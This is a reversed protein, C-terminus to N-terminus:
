KIHQGTWEGDNSFLNYGENSDPCLYKGTWAGDITFENFTGYSSRVFYGTWEGGANFSLLLQQCAVSIFGIMKDDKDFLFNGAWTSNKPHLANTFMPNLSQSVSPNLSLNILPNIAQNKSPNLADNHMPNMNWNYKPNISANSIPNIKDNHAPSLNFDLLPNHKQLGTQCFVFQASALLCLSILALKKM